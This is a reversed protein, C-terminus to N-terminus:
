ARPTRLCLAALDMGYTGFHQCGIRASFFDHSSGNGFAALPAATRALDLDLSGYTLYRQPGSLRAARALARQGVPDKFTPGNASEDLVDDLIRSPDPYDSEWGDYALDFPEGPKGLRSFFVTSPFTKIQVRIGIRALDNKVVQAQEIGPQFDLTYLIATRGSAGAERVLQRAKAPDGSLPYVHATRYGPMGPPLYHDTPQESLDQFGSGLATLARRDIAYNVAQRLRVDSFLPRHTNLYFFDVQLLPTVFYQERGRRAAASGRGFRAALRSALAPLQATSPSSTLGLTTYDATGAEIRAVAQQTSLGEDLEIRAFRHPRTGQYNPNRLLLVGQQPTYSAVYYPGASPIIREGQRSIPTDSPVACFAPLALRSLFDPQPARLRITLRNGSAIVGSIHAAKGAMYADAGVVDNLYHALPSQTRRNLTREITDKFTQATVPQDSPPSFRFDRRLTFVYMRGDPSRTPLAQAVEPILQSGAIGAQDPYNVLKACTAYLLQWSLNDYALAPDMSDVDFASLIRLTGGGSGARAPAISQADITVWVKGDAITIATPSGGVAVTAQVRDTIPDIRTVTGDGANAVWVSGAGVAIGAPSHGVRVTATVSRTDPDIRVIADDLSDVVWVGGAGAAIATPADGVPIPTLAQTPDVRVVENAETDTLWLAGDGSIAIGGPSANPDLRGTVAGTAVDLHTLLGTSPAIWLSNGQAAIAGPGDPIVNGIRVGSSSADFEPDIRTVKISSATTTDPTVNAQVVWLGNATAAIGTPPGALAITRVVRMTRPDIRSITQDDRNAAWLSGADFAVAGPRDGVAVAGVVHDSAPDIAAVSNAGVTMSSTGSSALRVAIGVLLVLLVAGGAAILTEGRVVRRSAAPPIASRGRTPPQLAPDQALIARQLEQLEPGPELGLDDVLRGRADRYVELAEAQRGSRYLALMLQGVFRERMPQERVLAELQGVLPAHDGLALEAEIRDQLACLRTEELRAVESQAFAQYTFDAFPPGRWLALAARLQVAAGRADGDALARRGEAILSEYRDLDTQGPQTQLAYGRGQTVLLGDGLVKRLNSVYGQLIKIASAPPQEGWLEDLLRDSSVPRGRHLLLLALLARQRPGGIRLM